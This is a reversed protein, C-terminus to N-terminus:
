LDSKRIQGKCRHSLQQDIRGVFFNNKWCSTCMKNGITEVESTILRKISGVCSRICATADGACCGLDCHQFPIDEM